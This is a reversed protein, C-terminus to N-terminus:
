ALIRFDCTTYTVLIRQHSESLREQGLNASVRRRFQLFRSARRGRELVWIEAHNPNKKSNETPFPFAKNEVTRKREINREKKKKQFRKGFGNVHWQGAFCIGGKGTMLWCLPSVAKFCSGSVKHSDNRLLSLCLPAGFRIHHHSFLLWWGPVQMHCQQQLLSQTVCMAGRLWPLANSKSWFPSHTSIDLVFPDWFM